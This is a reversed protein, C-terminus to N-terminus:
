DNTVVVEVDPVYAARIIIQPIKENFLLHLQILLGAIGTRFLNIKEALDYFSIGYGSSKPHIALDDRISKIIKFHTWNIGGKDLKKGQAMAPIWTDFKDNLSVKTTFSDILSQDKRKKNWFEAQYNIYGEISAMGSTVASLYETYSSKQVARDRAEIASEFSAWYGQMVLSGPSKTTLDEDGTTSNVRSMEVDGMFFATSPIFNEFFPVAQKLDRCDMVLKEFNIGNNAFVRKVDADSKFDTEDYHNGHRAFLLIMDHAARRSIKEKFKLM